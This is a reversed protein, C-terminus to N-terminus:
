GVLIGIIFSFYYPNSLKVVDPKDSKTTKGFDITWGLYTKPSLVKMLDEDTFPERKKSETKSVPLKM